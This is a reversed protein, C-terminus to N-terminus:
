FFGLIYKAFLIGSGLSDLWDGGTNETVLSQGGGGGPNIDNRIITENETQNRSNKTDPYNPM